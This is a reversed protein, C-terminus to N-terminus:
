FHITQRDEGKAEDSEGHEAHECRGEPCVRAVVYLVPLSELM